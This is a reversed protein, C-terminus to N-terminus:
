GWTAAVAALCLVDRAGGPRRMRFGGAAKVGCSSAHDGCALLPQGLPRDVAWRRTKILLGCHWPCAAHCLLASWSDHHAPMAGQVDHSWRYTCSNGTQLRLVEAGGADMRGGM